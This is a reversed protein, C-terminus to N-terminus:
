SLRSRSSSASFARSFFIYASRASSFSAILATKFRFSYRRRFAPLCRPDHDPFMTQRNGPGTSCCLETPRRILPLANIAALAIRRQDIREIAHDLLV